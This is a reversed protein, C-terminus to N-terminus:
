AMEKVLFRAQQGGDIGSASRLQSECAALVPEVPLIRLVESPAIDAGAIARADIVAHLEGDLPAWRAPRSPGFLVVSPTRMAAAVHSAGTDNTVLLDFRAIVAALAGLNTAGALDLAPTQMRARIKATLGREGEAGTLVIRAGYRAALDDGLEAFREAPWRRAPDKAGAHLGIWPGPGPLLEEARLRDVNAVPLDIRTQGIGVGALSVLRLWRLVEREDERWPIVATMGRDAPSGYGIATKAHFKAVIENTIGGSGHMQVALDYQAQRCREFFRPVDPEDVPRDPLGPYGPFVDFRDVAPLREALERAWPLGILTLKAAPFRTKLAHIAPTACLLDGLFLAQFVAIREPVNTLPKM